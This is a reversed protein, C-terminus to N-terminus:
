FAGVLCLVSVATVSILKQTFVIDVSEENARLFFLAFSVVSVGGFDLFSISGPVRLNGKSIDSVHVTYTCPYLVSLFRQQKHDQTDLKLLLLDKDWYSYCM